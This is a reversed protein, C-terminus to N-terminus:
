RAGEHTFVLKVTKFVCKVDMWFSQKKIYEMDYVIKEEPGLDYGGNVQAWGTLGPRVVLRNSFGHIYTEFQEYFCAREPRPGVLSMDGRLINWLQPLEDLRTKRLIKGVSTCREDIKDAWQPGNEEANIYMSRFKYMTFPKGGKGLREQKFIAPGKSDLRIILMILLMPLALLIGVVLAVAFDICRKVSLYVSNKKAEVAEVTYEKVSLMEAEGNIVAIDSSTM